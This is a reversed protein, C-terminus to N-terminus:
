IGIEQLTDLYAAVVREKSFERAAKQRGYEGM